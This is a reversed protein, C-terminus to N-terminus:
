ESEVGFRFALWVLCKSQAFHSCWSSLCVLFFLIEIDSKNQRIRVDFPILDTFNVHPFRSKATTLIPAALDMVMDPIFAVTIIIDAMIDELAQGVVM